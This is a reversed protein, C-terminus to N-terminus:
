KEKWLARHRVFVYVAFLAAITAGTQVAARPNWVRALAGIFVMGLPSTGILAMSYLSFVRGRLHDPSNTQVMTNATMLFTLLCWGAGILWVCGTYLSKSSAFAIVCLCFMAAGLLLRKGKHRMKGAVALTVAAGLAGLGNCTTLLSFGREDTVFIDKAFVPLLAGFSMAFLSVWAVLMTVLWLTEHTRVFRYGELLDLLRMPQGPAQAPQLRMLMLGAILAAFSLANIFFCGAMGVAHLLFGGVMPGAVRAGNFASSNFAIANPLDERGVMEVNFSQRVPIDFANVIGVGLTILAVHWVQTWGFFVIIALLLALFASASNTMMLTRRKDVRDALVGAPLTLLLIPATGCAAVATIVFPDHTLVDRMLWGQATQQAMTGILSLLNGTWFLRFNRHQFAPFRAESQGAREEEPAPESNAFQDPLSETPPDLPAQLQTPESSLGQQKTHLRARLSGSRPLRTSMPVAETYDPRVRPV